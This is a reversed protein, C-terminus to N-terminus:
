SLAQRLLCPLNVDVPDAGVMRAWRERRKMPTGDPRLTKERLRAGGDPGHLLGLFTRVPQPAQAIKVALTAHEEVCGLQDLVETESRGTASAVDAVAVKLRWADYRAVRSLDILHRTFALKFFAMREAPSAHPWFQPAVRLWTMLGEQEIDDVEFRADGLSLRYRVFRVAERHIWGLAVADITEM